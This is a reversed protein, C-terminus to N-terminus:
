ALSWRRPVDSRTTISLPISAHVYEGLAWDLRVYGCPSGCVLDVITSRGGIRTEGVDKLLVRTLLLESQVM